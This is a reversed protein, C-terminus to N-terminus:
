GIRFRIQGAQEGLEAKRAEIYELVARNQPHGSADRTERRAM